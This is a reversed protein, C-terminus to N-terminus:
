FVSSGYPWTLLHVLDRLAEYAKNLRKSNHLATSPWKCPAAIFYALYLTPPSSALTSTLLTTLSSITRPSCYHISFPSFHTSWPSVLKLVYFYFVWTQNGTTSNVTVVWTESKSWSFCLVTLLNHPPLQPTWNPGRSFQISCAPLSTMQLFLLSIQVALKFKPTTVMHTVIWVM